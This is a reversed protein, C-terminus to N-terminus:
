YDVPNGFRNAFPEGPSLLLVLLWIAGVIPIFIIFYWQGGKGVDHLRRVVVAIAPLLVGLSWAWSLVTGIPGILYQVLSCVASVLISFLVWWWYESRSARGTFNTYNNFVTSISETFTM